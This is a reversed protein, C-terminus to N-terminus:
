VFVRDRQRPGPSETSSALRIAPRKNASTSPAGCPERYRNDVWVRRLCSDDDVVTFSPGFSRFGRHFGHFGHHGHHGGHFGGKAAAPTASVALSATGLAAIAAVAIAFKRIM